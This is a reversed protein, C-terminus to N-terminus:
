LNRRRNQRACVRTSTGSLRMGFCNLATFLWFLTISSGLLYFTNSALHHDFLYALTGTIFAMITPYWVINYVWQLWITMFGARLGFAERVWVYLGGRNPYATALEAAVLAVPIFFIIAALLYYYVLAFGLKATIAVTRLSDVAIVNIMVLSFVSLVRKPASVHMPLRADLCFSLVMASIAQDHWYNTLSPYQSLIVTDFCHLVNNCIKQM